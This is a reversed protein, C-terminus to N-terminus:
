HAYRNLSSSHVNGALIFIEESTYVGAGGINKRVWNIALGTYSECMRDSHHRRIADAMFELFGGYDLYVDIHSVPLVDGPPM